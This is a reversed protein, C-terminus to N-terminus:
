VNPAIEEAFRSMTDLMEQLSPAAYGLMIVKVGLEGLRGIDDLVQDNSGTMLVRTGDDATLTQDALYWMAWYAQVISAPDRGYGEALSRFEDLKASYRELTNLPHAPNNGVPYWGDAIRAARRLARGSEGGTWIPIPTQIPKPLFIIDSFKVFEGDFRPDDETWLQRFAAIYEDTVSGRKDFPPAGIAEFEERMWGAGCGLTVRGGSLVDITALMKATLVAPRHPVVMVSTLLRVKETAGALCSLLVLPEMYEGPASGPFQGSQTYPYTSGIARPVVIHDTCAVYGFGLADAHRAIALVSERSGFPGRTPVIYGFEM